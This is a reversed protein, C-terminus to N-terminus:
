PPFYASYQLLYDRQKECRKCDKEEMRIDRAIRFQEKGEETMRGTLIRFVNRYHTWADDGPIYGTDSSSSPKSQDSDSMTDRDVESLTM